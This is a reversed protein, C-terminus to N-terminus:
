RERRHFLNPISWPTSTRASWRRRVTAFLSMCGVATDATPSPHLGKSSGPAQMENIPPFPSQCDNNPDCSPVIFFSTNFPHALAWNATAGGWSGQSSVGANIAPSGVQPLLTLTRGGNNTLPGLLPNVALIYAMAAFTTLGAQLERGVTTQHQELKFLRQLM